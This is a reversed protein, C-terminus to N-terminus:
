FHMIKTQQEQCANLYLIQLEGNYVKSLTLSLVLIKLTLRKFIFSTFVKEKSKGYWFISLFNNEIWHFNFGMNLLAINWIWSSIQCVLSM